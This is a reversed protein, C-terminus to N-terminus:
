TPELRKLLARVTPTAILAKLRAAELAAVRAGLRTLTYYRRREENSEPAPRHDVPDVLGDSVLRKLVKYLNGPELRVAGDTRAAIDLTLAYGHRDDDSLSLLVLLEVPKLPLFSRPDAPM